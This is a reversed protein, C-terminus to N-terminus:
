TAAMARWARSSPKTSSATRSGFQQSRLTGLELTDVGSHTRRANCGLVQANPTGMVRDGPALVVAALDSAACMSEDGDAFKVAYKKGRDPM